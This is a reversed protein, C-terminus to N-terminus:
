PADPWNGPPKKDDCSSDPDGKCRARRICAAWANYQLNPYANDLDRIDNQLKNFDALDDLAAKFSEVCKDASLKTEASVLFAGQCEEMSKEMDEVTRGSMLTEVKKMVAITEDWNQKGERGLATTPDEGNVMKEIIKAILQMGMPPFLGRKEALELAAEVEHPVEAGEIEPALLSIIAKTALSQILCATVTKVYDPYHANAEALKELYAAGAKDRESLRKEREKRNTQLRSDAELTSPCKDSSPEPPAPPAGCGCCIEWRIEARLMGSYYPDSARPSKWVSQGLFPIVVHRDAYTVCERQSAEDAPKSCEAPPVCAFFHVDSDALTSCAINNSPLISFFTFGTGWTDKGSRHPGVCELVTYFFGTEGILDSEVQPQLPHFRLYGAASQDSKFGIQGVSGLSVKGTKRGAPASCKEEGNPTVGSCGSSSIDYSVEPADFGSLLIMPWPTMPPSHLVLPFRILGRKSGRCGDKIWDSLEEVRGGLPKDPPCPKFAEGTKQGPHATQEGAPPPPLPSRPPSPPPPPKRNGSDGAGEGGGKIKPHRIEDSLPPREGGAGLHIWAVQPREYSRRETVVASLNIGVLRGSEVSGGRVHVEDGAPDKVAPPSAIPASLGIWAIQDRPFSNESLQCRDGACAKLDGKEIRGSRLILLDGSKQQAPVPKSPRTFSIPEKGHLGTFFGSLKTRDENANLELKGSWVGIAYLTNNKPDGVPGTGPEHNRCYYLLGKINGADYVGDFDVQFPVPKGDKDPNRCTKNPTAYRAVIKGGDEIGGVSPTVTIEIEQGNIDDKWLGDLPRFRGAGQAHVSISYLSSLYLLIISLALKM